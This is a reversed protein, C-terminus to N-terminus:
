KWYIIQYKKIFNLDEINEEVNNRLYATLYYRLDKEKKKDCVKYNVMNIM